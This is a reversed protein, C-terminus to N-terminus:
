PIVKLNSLSMDQMFPNISNTGDYSDIRVWARKEFVAKVEGQNAGNTVRDGVKIQHPEITMIESPQVYTHNDKGGSFLFSVRMDGDGDLEPNRVVARVTVVDGKRLAKIQEDTPRTM